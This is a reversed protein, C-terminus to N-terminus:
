KEDLYPMTAINVSMKYPRGELLNPYYVKQFQNVIQLFFTSGFKM